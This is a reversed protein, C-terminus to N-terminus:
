QFLSILLGAIVLISVCLTITLKAILADKKAIANSTQEVREVLPTFEDKHFADFESQTLIDQGLMKM